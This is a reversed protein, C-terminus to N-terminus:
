VTIARHPLPRPQAPVAGPRARSRQQPTATPGHAHRQHARHTRGPQALAHESPLLGLRCGPERRRPRPLRQVRRHPCPRPTRSASRYRIWPEHRVDEPGGPMGVVGTVPAPRSGPFLV